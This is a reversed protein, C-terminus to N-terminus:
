VPFATEILNRRHYLHEDFSRALERRCHGMIRKCKRTKVPILSFSQLDDRIMRHIDESDYGKDM